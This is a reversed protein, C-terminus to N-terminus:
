RHAKWLDVLYYFNSPGLVFKSRLSNSTNCVTPRHCILPSSVVVHMATPNRFCILSTYSLSRSPLVAGVVVSYVNRSLFPNQFHKMWALYVQLALLFRRTSLSLAKNMILECNLRSSQSGIFARVSTRALKKRGVRGVSSEPFGWLSVCRKSLCVHGPTRLPAMMTLLYAHRDVVSRISSTMRLDTFQDSSSRRFNM